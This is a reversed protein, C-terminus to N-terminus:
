IARLESAKKKIEDDVAKIQLKKNESKAWLANAASLIELKGKREAELSCKRSNEELSVQDISLRKRKGRLAELEDELCKRKRNVEGETKEKQLERLYSEYRSRSAAASKLLEKNVVVNPIGGVSRIHDCIVRQSVYGKESLNEVEICRNISFGREVSAQGHSILLVLKVVKWIKAYEHRGNFFSYFFVDLREKSIDYDKFKSTNPAVVDTIFSNFQWKINDCENEKIRKLDVLCGLLRQLQKKCNSPSNVMRRPDLCAAHRTFPYKLPAKELIKKCIAILCNKCSLRFEMKQLDSTQSKRLARETSFGIEIKSRESQHLSNDSVDIKAMKEATTLLQIQEEKCFRSLLSKLLNFVDTSLFPVMPQDTQYRLLFPTVENAVSLAFQLKAEILKDKCPEQTTQYSKCDPKPIKKEDVAKVFKKLNPLVELAGQLFNNNEVWRTKCFKLPM